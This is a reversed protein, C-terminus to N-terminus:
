VTSHDVQTLLLVLNATNFLSHALVPALLSETKVYLWTLAMALVVLPL